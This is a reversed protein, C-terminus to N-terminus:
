TREAIEYQRTVIARVTLAKGEALLEAKATEEAAALKANFNQQAARARHLSLSAEALVTPTHKRM